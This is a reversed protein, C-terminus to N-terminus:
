LFHGLNDHSVGGGRPGVSLDLVSLRVEDLAESAENGVGGPIIWLHFRDPNRADKELFPLSDGVDQLHAECAVSSIRLQIRGEATTV